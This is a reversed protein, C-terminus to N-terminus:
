RSGRMLSARATLDQAIEEIQNADLHILPGGQVRLTVVDDGEVTEGIALTLSRLGAHRRARAPIPATNM